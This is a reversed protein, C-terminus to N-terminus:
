FPPSATGWWNNEAMINTYWAAEVNYTSASDIYNYGWPYGNQGVLPFSYYWGYIATATIVAFYM